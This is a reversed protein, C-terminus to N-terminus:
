EKSIARPHAQNYVQRLRAKSVSTYIQTTAVDAHGLLLQVERLDAGGELLHTAFSHRLMHPSTTMSLRALRVRKKFINFLAQRSVPRGFRNLFLEKEQRGDLLKKREGDIYKKITYIAKDGIPIMRQKQRKGSVVVCKTEFFIHDVTMTQCESIRLGCAYLVELFAQDRDSFHGQYEPYDLFTEVQQVRLAKPLNQPKKPLVMLAKPHLELLEERYLYSFFANLASLKRHISSSALGKSLLFVSYEGLLPPGLPARPSFSLFQLIDRRYAQMTHVSSQKELKLFLQFEALYSKLIDLTTHIMEAAKIKAM